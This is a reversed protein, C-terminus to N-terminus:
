IAKRAAEFLRPLRWIVPLSVVVGAMLYYVPAYSDATLKVLYTAVFPTTGGFAAMCINYGMAVSSCRLHPPAMMTLITIALAWAVGAILSFLFQGIFVAVLSESYMLSWLPIALIGTALVGAMYIARLGFRDGLWGYLPLVVAMAFLNFSTIDLARASSVHMQDTLYSAAYVFILM